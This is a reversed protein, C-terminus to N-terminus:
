RTGGRRRRIVVVTVAAALLAAAVAIVPPRPRGDADTARDRLHHLQDSAQAKVEAVKDQARAKVDLRGTLEDITAALDERTREIEEQLEAQDPAPADPDKHSM